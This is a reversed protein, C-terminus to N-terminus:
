GAVGVVRSVQAGCESPDRCNRIRARSAETMQRGQLHIFAWSMLDVQKSAAALTQGASDLSDDSLFDEPFHFLDIQEDEGKELARLARAIAAGDLSAKRSTEEM